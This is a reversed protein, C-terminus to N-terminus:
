CNCSKKEQCQNTSRIGLAKRRQKSMKAVTIIEKRTINASAGYDVASDYLTQGPTYYETNYSKYEARALLLCSYAFRLRGKETDTLRRSM